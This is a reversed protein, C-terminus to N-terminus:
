GRWQRRGGGQQQQQQEQQQLHRAISSAAASMVAVYPAVRDAASCQPLASPSGESALPAGSDEPSALHQQGGDERRRAAARSRELWDVCLRLDGAQAAAFSVAAYIRPSLLGGAGALAPDDLVALADQLLPPPLLAERMLLTGLSWSARTRVQLLGADAAHGAVLLCTYASAETPAIGSRVMDDHLSFALAPRGTYSAALMAGCYSEADPRVGVDRMRDLCNVAERRRGALAAAHIYANFARLGPHVPQHSCGPPPFALRQWWKQAAGFDDQASCAAVAAALTEPTPLAGLELARSLVVLAEPAKGVEILRFLWADIGFSGMVPRLAAGRLVGWAAAAASFQSLETARAVLASLLVAAGAPSTSHAPGGLLAQVAYAAAVLIRTDAVQALSAAVAECAGEAGRSSSMEAYSILAAANAIAAVAAEPSTATSFAQGLSLCMKRPLFADPHSLFRSSQFNRTLLVVRARSWSAQLTCRLM